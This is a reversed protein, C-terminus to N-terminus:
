LIKQSYVIPYPYPVVQELDIGFTKVNLTLFFIGIRQELLLLPTIIKQTYVISIRKAEFISRALSHDKSLYLSTNVNRELFHIANNLYECFLMYLTSPKQFFFLIDIKKLM